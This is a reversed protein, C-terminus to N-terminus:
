GPDDPVVVLPEVAGAIGVAKRTVLDGNSRADDRDGVREVRDRRGPWVSAGRAVLLRDRDQSLLGAPLEVGPRHPREEGVVRTVSGRGHPHEREGGHAADERPQAAIGGRRCGDRRALERGRRGRGHRDAGRGATSRNRGHVGRPGGGTNMAQCRRRAARGYAGVPDLPRHRRGTRPGVARGDCGALTTRRVRLGRVLGGRVGGGNM